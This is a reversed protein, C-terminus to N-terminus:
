LNSRRLRNYAIRDFPELVEPRAPALVGM